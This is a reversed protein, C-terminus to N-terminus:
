EPGSHSMLLMEKCIGFMFIFTQRHFSRLIFNNLMEYSSLVFILWQNKNIKLWFLYLHSWLDILSSIKNLIIFPNLFTFASVKIEFMM